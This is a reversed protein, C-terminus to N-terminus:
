RRQSTANTDLAKAMAIDGDATAIFTSIDNYMTKTTSVFNEQAQSVVGDKGVGSHACAVVVTTSGCARYKDSAGRWFLSPKYAPYKDYVGRWFLTTSSFAIAAILIVKPRTRM